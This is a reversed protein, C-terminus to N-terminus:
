VRFHRKRDVLGKIIFPIEDDLDDNAGGGILDDSGGSPEPKSAPKSGGDGGGGGLLEIEGRFRSLVIETTYKDEGSQDKWKRTEIQGSVFIQDGKKCWNEVVGILHENWITIRHWETKEKKEGTTKDKWRESTALSLNAVKNGNSMTKIEPDRGLRGILEARNM